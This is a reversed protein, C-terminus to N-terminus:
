ADIKVEKERTFWLYLNWVVLALDIIALGNKGRKIAAAMVAIASIGAILNLERM